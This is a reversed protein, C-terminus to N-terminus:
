FPIDDFDGYNDYEKIYPLIEQQYHVKDLEFGAIQKIKETIFTDYKIYGGKELFILYSTEDEIIDCIRCGKYKGFPLKDTYGLLTSKIDKFAKAM